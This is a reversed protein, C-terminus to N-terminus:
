LNLGIFFSMGSRREMKIRAAQWLAAVGGEDLEVSAGVDCVESVESVKFVGLVEVGAGVDVGSVTFIEVVSPM